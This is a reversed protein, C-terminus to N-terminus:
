DWGMRQRFEESFLQKSFEDMRKLERPTLWHNVECLALLEAHHLHEPANEKCLGIIVSYIKRFQVRWYGNLSSVPYRRTDKKLREWINDSNFSRPFRGHGMGAEEAIPMMAQLVARDLGTYFPMYNRPRAGELSYPMEQLAETVVSDWICVVRKRRRIWRRTIASIRDRFPGSIVVDDGNLELLGQSLGFQIGSPHM